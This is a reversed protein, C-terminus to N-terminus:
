QLQIGGLPLEGSTNEARFSGMQAAKELIASVAPARYQYVPELGHNEVNHLGPRVLTNWNNNREDKMGLLTSIRGIVQHNLRYKKNTCRQVLKEIEIPRYWKPALTLPYGMVMVEISGAVGRSPRDTPPVFPVAQAAMNGVRSMAAPMEHSLLVPYQSAGKKIVQLLVQVDSESRVRLARNNLAQNFVGTCVIRMDRRLHRRMRLRVAEPAASIADAYAKEIMLKEWGLLDRGPEIMTSHDQVPTDVYRGTKRISPLVESYIWSQFRRAEPRISRGILYYLGAENIVNVKDKQWSDLDNNKNGKVGHLTLLDVIQRNNSDVTSLARTTNVIGLVKCVDTAVFWILDQDDLLTRVKHGEFISSVLQTMQGQPSPSISGSRIVSHSAGAQSATSSLM